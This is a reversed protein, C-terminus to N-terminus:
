PKPNPSITLSQLDCATDHSLLISQAPKGDAPRIELWRPVIEDQTSTSALMFLQDDPQIGAHDFIKLGHQFCQVRCSDSRACDIRYELLRPGLRLTTAPRQGQRAAQPSSQAIAAPMTALLAVSTTICAFLNRKM